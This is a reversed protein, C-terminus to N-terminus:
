LQRYKINKRKFKVQEISGNKFFSVVTNSTGLDIGLYTGENNEISM